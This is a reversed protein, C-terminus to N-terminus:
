PAADVEEMVLIVGRTSGGRLPLASAAVRCAIRRGRRNTAEVVLPEGAAGALAGRVLGALQAVPLGIDLAFFNTGVAESSRVGWLEEAGANWVLVRQQQDLVAVGGRLTAFVGELFANVENLEHSSKQLEDNSSQLEENMSHLEENMTELEENTSQLEENTTELEEVTSQLEENTTELEENTSQLEEYAAELHQRSEELDVRLQRRATADIFSVSVGLPEGAGDLLPELEVDLWQADGAPQQRWPSEHVSVSRREAYCQEILSRLEVPRYSLELDKIPRGLDIPALAFRARARLNALVLRGTRDVVIQATTGAEFAAERAKSAITDDVDSDAAATAVAPPVRDPGTSRAVKGYLRRMLNLAVFGEANSLTEARGLFLIGGDTLAYRFRRLIAAQTPADFYM